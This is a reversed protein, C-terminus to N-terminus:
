AAAGRAAAGEGCGAPLRIYGAKEGAYLATYGGPLVDRRNNFIGINFRIIIWGQSGDGPRAVGVIGGIHLIAAYLGAASGKGPPERGRQAHGPTKAQLDEAAPADGDEGPNEGDSLHVILPIQGGGGAFFSKGHHIVGLALGHGPGYQLGLVM